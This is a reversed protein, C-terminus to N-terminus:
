PRPMSGVSSVLLSCSHVAKDRAGGHGHLHYWASIFSSSLMYRHLTAFEDLSLGASRSWEGEPVKTHGELFADRGRSYVAATEPPHSSIAREQEATLQQLEVLIDPRGMTSM